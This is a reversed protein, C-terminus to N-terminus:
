ARRSGLDGLPRFFNGVILYSHTSTELPISARYACQWGLRRDNLLTLWQRVWVTPKTHPGVNGPPPTHTWEPTRTGAGGSCERTGLKETAEM